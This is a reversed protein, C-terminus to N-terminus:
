KSKAPAGNAACYDEFKNLAPDQKALAAQVKADAEKEKAKDGAKVADAMQTLSTGTEEHVAALEGIVKRLEENKEDPGALGKLSAATEGTIKAQEALDAAFAADSSGRAARTPRADLKKAAANTDLRVMMCRTKIHLKVEEESPGCGAMVAAAFLVTAFLGSIKHAGSM